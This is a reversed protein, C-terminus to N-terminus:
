LKIEKLDRWNKGISVEVGCSLGDPCLTPHKLMKAPREMIEKIIKGAAIALHEPIDFVLSDHVTNNMYAACTTPYEARIELMAERIKGFADNQVYFAIAAEADEGPKERGYKSDWEYVNHFWRIGGYRSVLFKQHDALRRIKEQWIFVEPFLKELLTRVSKAAAKGLKEVALMVQMEHPFYSAPKMSRTIPSYFQVKANAALWEEAQGETPNFSDENHSHLKDVGLGLGIGLIGAKAQQRVTKGYHKKIWALKTLFSERPLSLWQDLDKVHELSERDLEDKSDEKIRTKLMYATVYSHADSRALEMYKPSEANFGLTLVHFSSYDAELIINGPRPVILSRIEGGLRTHKPINQVNPKESTLQWTGSNFGFETHVRGEEDPTWGRGDIYTGKAKGLERVELTKMVIPIIEGVKSKKLLKRLEGKGTTESGDVDVPIDVKYHKLVARLQFTSNPNYPLEKYLIDGNWQYGYTETLKARFSEDLDSLKLVVKTAAKTVKKGATVLEEAIKAAKAEVICQKFIKTDEPWVKWEERKRIVGPILPQLEGNVREQEGEIWSRLRDQGEKDVGIGRAQMEDLLPRLPLFKEMYGDWVSKGTESSVKKKMQAPLGNWIHLVSDTDCIGYVGFDQSVFHKWPFRFKFFSAVVQLNRPLDPQYVQWMAMLDHCEIGKPWFEIENFRLIRNDFRWNNFGMRPNPLRAIERTFEATDQSWPLAIGEQMDQSFQIQTIEKGKVEREDEDQGAAYGTELDYSFPKLPNARLRQLWNFMENNGPAVSYNFDGQNMLDEPTDCILYDVPKGQAIARAKALDHRLVWYLTLGGRRVFSPHYSPIVPLRYKHSWLVYGRLKSVTRDKGALGTLASLPTNGLALIARPKYREVVSDFHRSCHSIASQEYWEGVLKNGPPKCAVTNWLVVQERVMGLDKIAKEVISGSQAYPRFPLGDKCEEEGLAEGVILLPVTGRGEPKSFGSSIDVLPCGGCSSPKILKAPTKGQFKSFNNQAQPPAELFDLSDDKNTAM